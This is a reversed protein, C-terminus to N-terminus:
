ENILLSEVRELAWDVGYQWAEEPGLELGHRKDRIDRPPGEMDAEHRVKSIIEEIKSEELVGALTLLRKKDM